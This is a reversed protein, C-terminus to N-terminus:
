CTKGPWGLGYRLGGCVCSTLLPHWACSCSPPTRFSSCGLGILHSQCDFRLPSLFKNYDNSIESGVVRELESDLKHEAVLGIHNESLQKLKTEPVDETCDLDLAEEENCGGVTIRRSGMQTRTRMSHRALNEEKKKGVEKCGEKQAVKTTRWIRDPM